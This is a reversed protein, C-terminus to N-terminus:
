ILAMNFNAYDYHAMRDTNCVREEAQSRRHGWAADRRERDSKHHHHSPIDWDHAPGKHGPFILGYDLWPSMRMTLTVTAMTLVGLFSSVSRAADAAHAADQLQM